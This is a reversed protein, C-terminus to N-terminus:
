GVGLAGEFLAGNAPASASSAYSAGVSLGGGVGMTSAPSETGVGLRGEVLLGNSPSQAAGALSSGITVGGAVDLANAPTMTGIAARGEVAIGDVPAPSGAFGSGFTASGGVDLSNAPTATAVGVSGMSLAGGLPAPLVSGAALGLTLGGSVDLRNAGGESSLGVNGNKNISLREQLVGDKMSAISVRADDKSDDANDWSWGLRAAEVVDSSALGVWWKGTWDEGAADKNVWSSVVSAPAHISRVDGVSAAFTSPMSWEYGDVASVQADFGGAVVRITILYDEGPVLPYGGDAEAVSWTGSLRASRRIAGAAQSPNFRFVVDGGEGLFDISEDFGSEGHTGAFTFEMDSMLGEPFFNWAEENERLALGIYGGEARASNHSIDSAGRELRMMEVMADQDQTNDVKSVHLPAMPADTGLGLAGEIIAGSIPAASSGAFAAGIAVGGEIDVMNVVSSTGVGLAGEFLAG